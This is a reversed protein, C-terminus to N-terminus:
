TQYEEPLSPGLPHMPNESLEAPGLLTGLSYPDYRSLESCFQGQGGSPKLLASDLLVIHEHNSVYPMHGERSLM